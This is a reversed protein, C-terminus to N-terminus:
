HELNSPEPITIHPNVNISNPIKKKLDHLYYLLKDDSSVSPEFAEQVLDWSATPYECPFSFQAAFVPSVKRM